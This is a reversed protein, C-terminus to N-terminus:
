GTYTTPALPVYGNAAAANGPLGIPVWQLAPWTYAHSSNNLTEYDAVVPGQIAASNSLTLTGVVLLGGQYQQSNNFTINNNQEVIVLLTPNPNCNQWDCNAGSMQACITTATGHISFTRMYITAQGQYTIAQGAGNAGMTIDGDFFIAGKITLVRTTHNWSLTGKSTTCTYDSATPTINQSAQSWNPEGGIISADFTPPSGSSSTCNNRPGPSANHYWGNAGDTRDVAPYPVAVYALDSTVANTHDAGAVCVHAPAGGTETCGKFTHVESVKHAADAGITGAANIHIYGGVDVKLPAPQWTENNIGHAGGANLCMDFKAYLPASMDSSIFENTCAGLVGQYSGVWNWAAANVQDLSQIPGATLPVTSTLTRSVPSSGNTLNAVQATSTILWSHTGSNYDGYVGLISTGPLPGNIGFHNPTGSVTAPLLSTQSADIANNLVSFAYNLGEEALNYAKDVQSSRSASSSNSVTYFSVSAIVIALVMMMGLAVILAIGREDRARRLLTPM